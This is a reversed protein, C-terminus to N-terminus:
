TGGLGEPPDQVGGGGGGLSESQSPILRVILLASQRCIFPQTYIGVPSGGPPLIILKGGIVFKRMCTCTYRIQGGGWDKTIVPSRQIHFILRGTDNLHM